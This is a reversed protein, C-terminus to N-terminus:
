PGESRDLVPPAIVCAYGTNYTCHLITYTDLEEAGVGAPLDVTLLDRPAPGSYPQSITYGCAQAFM